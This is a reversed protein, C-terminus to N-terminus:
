IVLESPINGGRELKDTRPFVDTVLAHRKGSPRCGVQINSTQRATRAEARACYYRTVPVVDDDKVGQPRSAYMTQHTGVSASITCSAPVTEDYLVTNISSDLKSKRPLENSLFNAGLLSHSLLLLFSARRAKQLLRVSTM